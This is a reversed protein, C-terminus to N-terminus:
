FIFSTNYLLVYMGEPVKVSSLQDNGIQLSQVNYKGIKLKQSKGEFNSHQFITVVMEDESPTPKDNVLTQLYSDLDKINFAVEGNNDVVPMTISGSVKGSLLAWMANNNSKSTTTNLETFEVSNDKLFKVVKACRGCGNMTYVKLGATTVPEPKPKPTPKANKLNALYGNLDKISFAVEGNNDVVPMTVSGSVKGELLAWMAMSNADSTSTNHETFEINNDKLYQVTRACRGCGNMTYVKIQANVQM